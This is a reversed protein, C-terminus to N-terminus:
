PQLDAGDTWPGRWSIANNAFVAILGLFDGFNTFKAHHNNFNDFGGPCAVNITSSGNTGTFYYLIAQQGIFSPPALTRVEASAVNSGAEMAFFPNGGSLPHMTAGNTGTNTGGFPYDNLPINMM